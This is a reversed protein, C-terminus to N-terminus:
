MTLSMGELMERPIPVPVFDTDELVGEADDVDEAAQQPYEAEFGQADCATESTQVVEASTERVSSVVAAVTENPASAVAAEDDHGVPSDFFGDLDGFLDTRAASEAASASAKPVEAVAPATSPRVAADVEAGAKTAATPMSAATPIMGDLKMRGLTEKLSVEGAAIRSIMEVSSLMSVGTTLAALVRGEISGSEPLMLYLDSVTKAVRNLSADIFSLGMLKGHLRKLTGKVRQSVSQKGELSRQAMTRCRQAVDRMIDGKIGSAAKDLTGNVDMGAPVLACVTYAAHIREDVEDVSKRASEIFPAFEPNLKCWEDYLSPLRQLFSAKEREYDAAISELSRLISDAKEVPLLWGKLFPTGNDDLLTEARDKLRAFVALEKPNILRKQGMAAILEKPPLVGLDAASFVVSGTWQRFDLHVIVSKETITKVLEGSSPKNATM